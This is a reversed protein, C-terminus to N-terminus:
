IGKKSFSFDGLRLEYSQHSVAEGDGSSFSFTVIGNEVLGIRPYGLDGLTKEFLGETEALLNGERDFLAISQGATDKTVGSWEGDQPKFFSFSVLQTGDNLECYSGADYVRLTPHLSTFRAVWYDYQAPDEARLEICDKSGATKASAPIAMEVPSESTVCYESKDELTACVRFDLGDKLVHYQYPVDGPGAPVEKIEGITNPYRSNLEFYMQLLGRIQQLEYKREKDRAESSPVSVTVMGYIVYGLVGLVVLSIFLFTFKKM